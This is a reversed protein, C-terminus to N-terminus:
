TTHVIVINVYMSNFTHISIPIFSHIFSCHLVKFLLFELLGSGSGVALVPSSEFHHSEFTLQKALFHVFHQTIRRLCYLTTKHENLLQFLDGIFHSYSCAGSICTCAYVYM